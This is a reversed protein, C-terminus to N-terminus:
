VFSSDDGDSDFFGGGDDDPASSEDDQALLDDSSTSDPADTESPAEYYNNIIETPQNQGLFGGGGGFPGSNHGLLNEIGQFLLAGGAVGAATAMANQLFGGGASSASVPVQAAAQPLPPPTIPRPAVPTQPNAFLGAVGSLFGGGQSSKANAESLQRELDSIRGQAATVAQQLVLISQTLLYPARPNSAMRGSILRAADPDEQQAPAQALRDYLGNILNSEETNMIELFLLRLPNELAGLHCNRLPDM